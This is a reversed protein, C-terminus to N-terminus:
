RWAQLLFVAFAPEPSVWRAGVRWGAQGAMEAFGDLTFKYSNETHITEGAVMDVTRGAVTFRQAVRSVLHMEMRSERANWVARHSFNAVDIDGELERNLRTLLNLNFAATVGRADDYAAVLVREDKVLDVGVIFQAGEGLLRRASKLFAV